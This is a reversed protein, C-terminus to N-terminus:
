TNQPWILIPFTLGPWSNQPSPPPFPLSPCPLDLTLDCFWIYFIFYICKSFFTLNFNFFSYKCCHQRKTISFGPRVPPNIACVSLFPSLYHMFWVPFIHKTSHLCVLGAWVLLFGSNAWHVLGLLIHFNWSYYPLKWGPEHNCVMCVCGCLCVCIRIAGLWRCARVHAYITCM